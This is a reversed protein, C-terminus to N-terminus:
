NNNNAAGQTPRDGATTGDPFVIKRYVGVPTGALSPNVTVTVKDGAMLKHRNWGARALIGPSNMEVGWRVVNGQADTVDLFLQCHPNAWVFEDVVGSVTVQKNADYSTGTGHHAFAPACVMLLAAMAIAISSLKKVNM